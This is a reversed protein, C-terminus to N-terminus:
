CFLNIIGGYVRTFHLLGDEPSWLKHSLAVSYLNKSFLFNFDDKNDIEGIIFMNAVVAVEGDPVRQAAWIAGTGTDDATIHFVFAENPDTVLLSEAGGKM